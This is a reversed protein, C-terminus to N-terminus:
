DWDIIEQEEDGWCWWLECTNEKPIEMTPAKPFECQEFPEIESGDGNTWGEERRYTMRHICRDCTKGELLNKAIEVTDM